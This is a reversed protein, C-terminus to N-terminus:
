PLSDTLRSVCRNGGLWQRCSEVFSFPVCYISLYSSLYVFSIIFTLNADPRVWSLHIGHPLRSSSCLSSLHANPFAHKVLSPNCMKTRHSVIRLLRLNEMKCFAVGQKCRLCWLFHASSSYKCQGDATLPASWAGCETGHAARVGIRGNLASPRPLTPARM